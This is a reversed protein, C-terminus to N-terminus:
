RRGTGRNGEWSRLTASAAGQGTGIYYQKTFLSEHTHSCSTDIRSLPVAPISGAIVSM